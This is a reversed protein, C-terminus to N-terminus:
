GLWTIADGTQGTFVRDKDVISTSRERRMRPKQQSFITNELRLAAICYLPGVGEFVGWCYECRGVGTGRLSVEEGEEDCGDM